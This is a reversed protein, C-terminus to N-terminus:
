LRSEPLTSFPRTPMQGSRGQVCNAYVQDPDRRELYDSSIGISISTGVNGNSDATIGVSGRPRQALQASEICQREAVAVPVPGCSALAALGAGVMLIRRM